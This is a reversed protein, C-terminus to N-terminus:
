RGIASCDILTKTNSPSPPTAPSRAPMNPTPPPNRAVGISIKTPMGGVTATALWALWTIALETDDSCTWHRRPLTSRRM